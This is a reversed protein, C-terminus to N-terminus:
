QERRQEMTRRYLEDIQDLPDTSPQRAEIELDTRTSLEDIGTGAHEAQTRMLDARIRACMATLKAQHERLQGLTAQDSMSSVRMHKAYMGLQHDQAEAQRALQAMLDPLDSLGWGQQQAHDIAQRTLAVERRLDLRLREVEAAEGTGMANVHASLRTTAQKASKAAKKGVKVAFYIAAGGLALLVLFVVLLIAIVTEIASV